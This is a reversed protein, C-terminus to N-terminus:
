DEAVTQTCPKFLVHVRTPLLGVPTRAMYL